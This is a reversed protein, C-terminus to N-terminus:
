NQIEVLKYKTTNWKLIKINRKPINFYESLIDILQNNAQWKIPKATLKISYIEYNTILDKWIKKIEIKKSWPKAQILIKM